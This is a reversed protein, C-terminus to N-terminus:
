NETHKSGNAKLKAAGLEKEIADMVNPSVRQITGAWDQLSNSKIFAYKEGCVLAACGDDLQKQCVECNVSEINTEESVKLLKYDWLLGCVKCVKKPRRTLTPAGRGITRKKAMGKIFSPLMAKLSLLTERSPGSEPSPDSM